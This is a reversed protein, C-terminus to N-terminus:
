LPAPWPMRMMSPLSPLITWVPSSYPVPWPLRMGQLLQTLIPLIGTIYALALFDKSENSKFLSRLFQIYNKVKPSNLPTERIICDWEDIIIVFRSEQQPANTCDIINHRNNTACAVTKNHSYVSMIASAITDPAGDKFIEPFERCFEQTVVENMYQVPDKGTLDANSVFSGMDLMLVNYKNLHELYRKNEREGDPRAIEYPAFMESSDCTHCYYAQIMDAAMSKGFRRARSVAIYRKSTGIRSNLFGLLGTKDVYIESDIAGRFRGNGTNVYMGM